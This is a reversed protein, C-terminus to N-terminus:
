VSPPQTPMSDARPQNELALALLAGAAAAALPRGLHYGQLQTCGLAEAAQAQVETEVGEAVIELQLSHGLVCTAKVVASAQAEPLPEIMSRDLKMTSIPLNRLMTLSSQGTGFDDLSCLVGAARLRHLQPLVREVHGIAATETIEIELADPPLGREELLALVRSAFGADDFQLPSVNVAVPLAQGWALQWERLQATAIDLILEGLAKIQGTREAAPVFEAPSVRGKGPREWRVLAEFGCLTRSGARFKPQYELLFEREAIAHGLSQEADLRARSAGNMAVDFFMFSAGANGKARHMASDAARLLSAGDRGDQPFLAAGLSMHVFLEAGDLAFPADLLSLLQEAVAQVEARSAAGEILVLFQDEGLRTLLAQPPLRRCLRRAVANLLADGVAHGLSENVLQFRDLDASILAFPPAGLYTMDRLRELAFNRNPLDTLEDHLAQRRLADVARQRSSDDVMVMLEAPAEDWDLHSSLGRIHLPRGDMDLRTAEWEIRAAPNALVRQHRERAANRLEPPVLAEVLDGPLESSGRVYGFIALAAPNAYVVRHDQLVVLGQLSHEALKSFRETQRRTEAHARAVSLLILGLSLTAQVLLGSVYTIMSRAQPDLWPASLHVLALAVFGVGVWRESHRGNRWLLHASALSGLGMVSSGVLLASRFDRAGLGALILMIIVFLPLARQWRLRRGRYDFAGAVQLLQSAMLAMSAFLSQIDRAPGPPSFDHLVPGLTLGCGLLVWSFGWLRVYAFRQDQRWLLLLAIGFMVNLGASILLLLPM